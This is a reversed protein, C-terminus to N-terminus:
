EKVKNEITWYTYISECEPWDDAVCRLVDLERKREFVIREAENNLRGGIPVKRVLYEIVELPADAECALILASWKNEDDYLTDNLLAEEWTRKLFQIVYLPANAYCAFHLPYMGYEDEVRCVAPSANVLMCVRKWDIVDPRKDFEDLLAWQVWVM